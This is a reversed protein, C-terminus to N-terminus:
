KVLMMKRTITHDGANLRYIYVGSAWTGTELPVEHTGAIRQEDVVTAVQRGLVDYVDLRVHMPRPLEYTVQTSTRFPNPYNQHLAVRGPLTPAGENPLVSPYLFQARIPVVTENFSTGSTTTLNWWESWEGENGSFQSVNAPDYSAVATVVYNQDPGTGQFGVYISDPLNSLEDAFESLDVEYFNIPDNQYVGFDGRTDSFARDFLLTGPEDSGTITWVKIVFDKPASAPAQDFNSYFYLPLFIKDLRVNPDEFPVDFKTAVIQESTEDNPIAFYSSPQGNDYAVVDDSFEIKPPTWSASYEFFAEEESAFDTNVVLVVIQDYVGSFSEPGGDAVFTRSTMVGSTDQAIARLRVDSSATGNITNLVVEFDTINEWRYYVAGGILVSDQTLDTSSGTRGDYVEKATARTNARGRTAYGFRPDLTTDQVVNATHFDFLVDEFDRTAGARDLGENYGAIGSQALRTLEGTELIGYQDGFYNTFAGARQYDDTVKSTSGRWTLLRVNYRIHDLLYSPTRIPYGNVIEAYESLGENVFEIETNDYPIMILHQYEHAATAAVNAIDRYTDNSPHYLGPRLDLSVQDSNNRNNQNPSVYGATYGQDPEWGDEIDFWLVTTKGNGNQDPPTGFVAENNVIIGEDPNYSDDPTQESLAVALADIDQQRVYNSDIADTAVWLNYRPRAERLVFQKSEFQSSVFNVVDFTTTDGEAPAATQRAYLGPSDLRRRYEELARQGEPSNMLSDTVHRIKLEDPARQSREDPVEQPDPTVAAKGAPEAFEFVETGIEQALAPLPLYLICAFLLALYKMVFRRPLLM